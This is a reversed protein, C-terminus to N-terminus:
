RLVVFRLTHGPESRLRAFYVGPGSRATTWVPTTGAPATVTRVLRGAVDYIDVTSPIATTGPVFEARQVVPNPRVRLAVPPPPAHVVSVTSQNARFVGTNRADVGRLPWDSRGPAVEGETDWAYVWGNWTAAVLEFLGDGDIDGAAVGSISSGVMGKPYGEILQGDSSVAHLEAGDTAVCVDQLGDNDIDVIAPFGHPWHPVDYPWGAVPDGTELDLVHIRYTSGLHNDLAILEPLGDGTVDGLGLYLLQSSTAVVMPFGPYPTGDHHTAYARSVGSGWHGFLIELDHDGDLDVPIPPGFPPSGSPLTDLVLPYGLAESGNSQFVHLRYSPSQWSVAFMEETGDGQVDGFYLSLVNEAPDLDVTFLRAGTHDYAAVRYHIFANGLSHAGWAELNGDGDTDGLAFPTDLANSPEDIAQQPFNLLDQATFEKGNFCWMRSSGAWWDRESWLIEVDGDHDLDAVSPGPKNANTGYGQNVMEQTPWGAVFTGDGRLAFTHGGTLFIEDAGDHDADFLTPTYPFGVGPAGLDVPWGVSIALDRAAGGSVSPRGGGQLALGPALCDGSAPILTETRLTQEPTTATATAVGVLLMLVSALRITQM